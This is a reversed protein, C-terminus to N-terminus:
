IKTIIFDVIQRERATLSHYKMMLLEQENAQESVFSSKDSLLQRLDNIQFLQMIRGLIELPPEARGEEYSAYASRSIKLINSVKQQSLNNRNRLKRINNGFIKSM